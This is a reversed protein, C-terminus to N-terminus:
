NCQENESNIIIDYAESTIYQPSYSDGLSEIASTFSRLHNRSGCQLREFVSILSTNSTADIYIQLDQIDLDEITAGVQLANNQSVSGEVIFQNYLSQIEQNNFIGAPQISYSINNQALLNSVANLHSQESNKINNFINLSWIDGLHLYTDRALKEEELMFLLAEKDKQNLVMEDINQNVEKDDDSCSYLLVLSMLVMIGTLMIKEIFNKM